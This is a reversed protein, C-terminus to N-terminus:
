LLTHSMCSVQSSKNLICQFTLNIFYIVSLANKEWHWELGHAQSVPYHMELVESSPVSLGNGSDWNMQCQLGQQTDNLATSREPCQLLPCKNTHPLPLACNLDAGAECLRCRASCGMLTPPLTCLLPFCERCTHFCCWCLFSAGAHNPSKDCQDLITKTINQGKHGPSDWMPSPKASSHCM